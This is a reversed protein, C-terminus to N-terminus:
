EWEVQWVLDNERLRWNETVHQTPLLQLTSFDLDKVFDAQVFSRLLSEVMEKESFLSKYLSDSRIRNKAAAKRPITRPMVKKM